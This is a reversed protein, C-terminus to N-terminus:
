YRNFQEMETATLIRYMRTPAACFLEVVKGNEATLRLIGPECRGSPYFAIYDRETALDAEDLWQADIGEPVTFADGFDDHLAIFESGDQVTLWYLGQEPDYNFLYIRGENMARNRAQQMLAMMKRATNSARQGEAFSRLSPAAIGLAITIILMVAILELLTFGGIRGAPGRPAAGAVSNARRTFMTM